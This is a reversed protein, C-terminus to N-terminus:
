LVIQDSKVFNESISIIIEKSTSLKRFCLMCNAATAALTCLENLNLKRDV